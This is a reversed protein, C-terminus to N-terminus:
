PPSTKKEARNTDHQNKNKKPYPPWRSRCTSVCEKGVRSEESRTLILDRRGFKGLEEHLSTGAFANPLGKDVVLEGEHPAVAPHIAGRSHGLDFLSGPRGKHRIHVVPTGAERARDLLGTLHDLGVDVGVLPLDGSVYENQCDM